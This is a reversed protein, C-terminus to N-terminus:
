VKVTILKVCLKNYEEWNNTLNKIEEILYFYFLCLFQLSNYSVYSLLESIEDTIQEIVNTVRVTQHCLSLICISM